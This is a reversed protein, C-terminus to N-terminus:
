RFFQLRKQTLNDSQVGELPAKERLNNFFLRNNYSSQM